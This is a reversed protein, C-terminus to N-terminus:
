VRKGGPLAYELNGALTDEPEGEVSAPAAMYYFLAAALLMVVFKRM